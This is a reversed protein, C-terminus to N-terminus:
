FRITDDGQQMGISWLHQETKARLDRDVQAQPARIAMPEAKKNIGAAALCPWSTRQSIFNM